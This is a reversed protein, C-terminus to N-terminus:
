AGGKSILKIKNDEVRIDVNSNGGGGGPTWDGLAEDIKQLLEEVRSGPEVENEAGLINQLISETRSQPTDFDTLAM